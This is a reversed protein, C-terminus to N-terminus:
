LILFSCRPLHSFQLLTQFSHFLFSLSFVVSTVFHRFFLAALMSIYLVLNWLSSKHGFKRIAVSDLTEIESWHFHIFNLVTSYICCVGFIWSVCIVCSSTQGWSLSCPYIVIEMLNKWLSPGCFIGTVVLWCFVLYNGTSWGMIWVIWGGTTQLRGPIAQKDVRIFLFLFYNSVHDFSRFVHLKLIFRHQRDYLFYSYMM